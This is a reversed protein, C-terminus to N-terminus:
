WTSISNTYSAIVVLINGCLSSIAVTLFIAWPTWLTMALSLCNSRKSGSWTRSARCLPWREVLVLLRLLIKKSASSFFFCEINFPCNLCIVTVRHCWLSYIGIRGARLLEWDTHSALVCVSLEHRLALFSPM